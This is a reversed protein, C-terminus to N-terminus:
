INLLFNDLITFLSPLISFKLALLIAEAIALAAEAKHLEAPVLQAAQGAKAHQYAQRANVLETPPISAGCGVLLGAFVLTILYIMSKM